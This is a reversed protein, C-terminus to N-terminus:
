ARDSYASVGQIGHSAIQLGTALSSPPAVQNIRSQASTAASKRQEGYQASSRELNQSAMTDAVLGQRMIDQTIADNNLFGGSDTAKVRSAVKQAELDRAIKESAYKEQEQSQQLNILRDQDQKARNANEANQEAMEGQAKAGQYTSAMGLASSGITAATGLTGWAATVAAATTTGAAAAATAAAASGAGGMIVPLAAIVPPCM